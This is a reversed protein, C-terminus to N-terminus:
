GRPLVLCSAAVILYCELPYVPDMLIVLHWLGPRKYCFLKSIRSPILQLQPQITPHGMLPNVPKMNGRAKVQLKNGQSNAQSCISQHYKRHCYPCTKRSECDRSKHNSKLYNYCWGSQLLIEKREQSVTVRKCSALYHAENCYVCQVSSNQAVLSSTTSNPLPNGRMHPGGTHRMAPVKVM